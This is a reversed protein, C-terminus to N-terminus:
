GNDCILQQLRQPLVILQVQERLRRGVLLVVARARGVFNGSEMIPASRKGIRSQLFDRLELVDGDDVQASHPDGVCPDFMQRLKLLQLKGQQM